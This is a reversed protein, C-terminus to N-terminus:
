KHLCLGDSLQHVTPENWVRHHLRHHRVIQCPQLVGVHETHLQLRSAGHRLALARQQLTHHGRSVCRSVAALGLWRFSLPCAIPFSAVVDEAEVTRATHVVAYMLLRGSPLKKCMSAPPVFSLPPFVVGRESRCKGYLSSLPFISKGCRLFASDRM